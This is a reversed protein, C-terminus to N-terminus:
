RRYWQKLEEKAKTLQPTFYVEPREISELGQDKRRKNWRGSREEFYTDIDNHRYSSNFWKWIFIGKMWPEHWISEFLAQYCLLQTQESIKVEKADLHQPWSWPEIAADDTNKYGVETFIVKKNFKKAVREIDKKHKDWSKNIIEKTPIKHNSLPFYAQIGIYDLDDWFTIDEYEQYWNAAYTLQGSYVKRIEKILKRWKEPHQKTTQHLETGICLAEMNSEEALHAYHLMIMGYNGFWTEWDKENTMAIDSRWKGERGRLWIHPKLMSKVGKERALGATHGLGHDSEGWGVRDSNMGIDPSQYDGMWAFPTQSIWDAGVDLLDDINHDAISDGAVWCVGKMKPESDALEMKLDGVPLFSLTTLFVVMSYISIVLIHWGRETM